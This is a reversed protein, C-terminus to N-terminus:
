ATGNKSRANFEHQNFNIKREANRAHTPCLGFHAGMRDHPDVGRRCGSYTCLGVGRGM